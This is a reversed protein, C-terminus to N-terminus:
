KAGLHNLNPQNTHVLLSTTFALFWVMQLFDADKQCNVSM